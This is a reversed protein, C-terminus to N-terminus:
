VSYITPLTLHTYSVPELFQGFPQEALCPPDEESRGLVLEKQGLMHLLVPPPVHRCCAQSLGSDGTPSGLGGDRPLAPARGLEALWGAASASTM